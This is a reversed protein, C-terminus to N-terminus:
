NRDLGQLHSDRVPELRLVVGPVAAVEGGRAHGGLAGILLGADILRAFLQAQDLHVVAKRHGLEDGHFVQVNRGFAAGDLVHQVSKVVRVALNGALDVAAQLTEAVRNAGGTQTHDIFHVQLHLAAGALPLPRLFRHEAQGVIESTERLAVHGGNGNDALVAGSRADRRRRRLTPRVPLPSARTPKTQSSRLRGRYAIARPKGRGTPPWHPVGTQPSSRTPLHTSPLTMTMVPAPRPMPRSIANSAAASPALTTTLSRPPAASPSPLSTLTACATALSIPLAPPTATALPSLTASGCPASRMM